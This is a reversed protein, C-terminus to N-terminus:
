GDRRSREFRPLSGGIVTWSPRQSVFVHDHPQVANADDLTATAIDLEDPLRDDEFTLSTGCIGCFRRTGHQSSRYTAPTGMWEVDRRRVSFWAVAVAGSSRRCDVCYCVTQHFPKGGATYRIAGCHCGGDLM